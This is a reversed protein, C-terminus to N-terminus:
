TEKDVVLKVVVGQGTVEYTTTLQNEIKKVESVNTIKSSQQVVTIVSEVQPNSTWEVQPVPECTEFTVEEVEEIIEKEPIECTGM